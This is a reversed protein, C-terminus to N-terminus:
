RNGLAAACACHRRENAQDLGELRGSAKVAGDFPQWRIIQEGPARLVPMPQGAGFEGDHQRSGFERKLIGDLVGAKGGIRRHDRFQEGRKRRPHPFAMGPGDFVVLQTTFNDRGLDGVSDDVPHAQDM